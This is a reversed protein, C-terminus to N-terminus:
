RPPATTSCGRRTMPEVRFVGPLAALRPLQDPWAWVRVVPPNNVEFLVISVGLAELSAQFRAADVGDFASVVVQLREGDRQAHAMEEDSALRYAPHYRGVWQVAHAARVQDLLAPDMRVIYTYNPWYALFTVGLAELDALWEQKIPGYFQVLFYPDDLPARLHDAIAPEGQATDFVTGNLSIVTRDPLMDVLYRSQLAPLDREAVEALVFAGYDELVRLGTPLPPAGVVDILVRRTGAPPGVSLAGAPLATTLLMLAVVFGAFLSQFGYRPINHHENM